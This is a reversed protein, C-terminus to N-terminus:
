GRFGLIYIILLFVTMIGNLIAGIIPFRYFIDKQKFAKYSLVFGFAALFFLGIGILGLLLSGGGKAVASLISIIIFGAVVVFGIIASLIGLKTHRRGSFHIM